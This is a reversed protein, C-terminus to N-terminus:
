ARRRIEFFHLFVAPLGVGVAGIIIQHAIDSVPPFLSLVERAALLLILGLAIRLGFQPNSRGATRVASTPVGQAM